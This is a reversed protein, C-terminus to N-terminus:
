NGRRGAGAKRGTDGSELHAGDSPSSMRSGYRAGGDNALRKNIPYLGLVGCIGIWYRLRWANVAAELAGGLAFCFGGSGGECASGMKLALRVPSAEKSNATRCGRAALAASTFAFTTLSLKATRDLSTEMPSRCATLTLCWRWQALTDSRWASPPTVTDPSVRSSACASPSESSFALVRQHRRARAGCIPISREM